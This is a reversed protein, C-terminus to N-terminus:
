RNDGDGQLKGRQQRSALKDHNMQAIAELTTGKRECIWTLLHVVRRLAARIKAKRPRKLVGKNDRHAKKVNEAVVGAAVALEEMVDDELWCENYAKLFTKRQMVQSLTLGADHATGAVYWLVDGVEKFLNESFDVNTHADNLFVQILEGIEGCLGLTPYLLTLHKPYIATAIAGQQYEDLKM